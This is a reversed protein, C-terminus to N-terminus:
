RNRSIVPGDVNGPNPGNQFPPPVTFNGGQGKGKGGKPAGKAADGGGQGTVLAATALCLSAVFLSYKM